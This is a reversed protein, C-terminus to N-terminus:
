SQGNAPAFTLIELDELHIDIIERQMMTMLRYVCPLLWGTVPSWFVVENVARGSHEGFCASIAAVKVDLPLERSHQLAHRIYTILRPVIMNAFRNETQLGIRFHPALELPLCTEVTLIGSAWAVPRQVFLALLRSDDLFAPIDQTGLAIKDYLRMFFGELGDHSLFFPHTLLDTIKPRAQEDHLLMWELLYFLMPARTRLCSELYQPTQRKLIFDSQHGAAERSGNGFPLNGDLFVYSMTMGLMFVDQFFSCPVIGGSLRPSRTDDNGQVVGGDSVASHFRRLVSVVEFPQFEGALGNTPVPSNINAGINIRDVTPMNRIRSPLVASAALCHSIGFDALKIKGTRSILVNCPRIDRHVWLHSHMQKIANCLTQFVYMKESNPMPIPSELLLASELRDDLSGICFEQVIFCDADYPVIAFVDAFHDPSLEHLRKQIEVEVSLIEADRMGVMRKMAVPQLIVSGFSDVKMVGRFVMTGGSGRGLECRFDVWFRDDIQRMRTTDNWGQGLLRDNRRSIFDRHISSISYRSHEGTDPRVSPEVSHRMTLTGEETRAAAPPSIPAPTNSSLVHPNNNIRIDDLDQVLRELDIRHAVDQSVTFGRDELAHRFAPHTSYRLNMPLAEPHHLRIWDSLAAGLTPGFLSRVGRLRENLFKAFQSAIHRVFEDRLRRAVARAVPLLLRETQVTVDWFVGDIMRSRFALLIAIGQEFLETSLFTVRASTQAVSNTRLVQVETRHGISGLRNKLQQESNESSIGAQESPVNEVLLTCEQLSRVTDVLLPDNRFFDYVFGQESQVLLANVSELLLHLEASEGNM